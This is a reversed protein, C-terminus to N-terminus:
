SERGERVAAVWEDAATFHGNSAGPLVTAVVGDARPYSGLFRVHGCRRRLASLAHGVRGDAIHGEIDLFFRYEGFRGKIPRSEIRTLNIGRLALETLVESLAGVRHATVAVLSTRDAGTPEPAVGPRRVLLFRTVADPVDAIDTALAELPPYRTVAVPATVAADYQRSLVAVAAAATSTTAATRASPLHEALWGQVQALAHPHSAVTRVSTADTGPMVLVSFRVPLVSEAVAVLPEDESLADLTAPVSGEVSNEVPVCAADVSGDRVASLALRVSSAPLLEANPEVLARAAQETFTGEPGLYSIRPM